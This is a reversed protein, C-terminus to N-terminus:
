RRLEKMVRRMKYSMVGAFTIKILNVEKSIISLENM